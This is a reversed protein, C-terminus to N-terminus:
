RQPCLADCIRRDKGGEALRRFDEALKGRWVKQFSETHLLGFAMHPMTVCSLLEGNPAIYCTEFGAGCNKRQYDRLRPDNTKDMPIPFDDASLQVAIDFKEGLALLGAATLENIDDRLLHRGIETAARGVEKIAAIKVTKAGVTKVDEFLQPLGEDDGRCLTLRATSNVGSKALNSLGQIARQYTKPGRVQEHLKPGGDFSVRVELPHVSKLKEVTGPRLLLGNTTVVLNVGQSTIRRFIEEWDPHILPEGGATAIELIGISAIESVLELIRPTSFETSTDVFPSSNTLCHRCQLNCRYTFDFYAKLPATADFSDTTYVPETIEMHDNGWFYKGDRMRYFLVGGPGVAPRMIWDAGVRDDTTHLFEPVRM